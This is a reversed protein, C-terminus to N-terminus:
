CWNGIYFIKHHQLCRVRSTMDLCAKCHMERRTQGMEQELVSSQGCRKRLLGALGQCVLKITGLDRSICAKVVNYHWAHGRIAQWDDLSLSGELYSM